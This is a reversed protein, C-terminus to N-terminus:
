KAEANVEGDSVRLRFPTGAPLQEKRKIVAGTEDLAVAYGRDLVALPNLSRLKEDQLRLKQKRRELNVDLVTQLRQELHAIQMKRDDFYAQPSKLVPRSAVSQLRQRLYETRTLLSRLLKDQVNGFKRALEVADPVAIEAAASPTPARLDAVFDCITFDIEHGVASIIPTKCAYVARALNEDNFCWLDEMSGGGRGILIVDCLRNEDLLRLASILEGPANPGQVTAPALLIKAAPFRRRTVNIMDRVAAGNPATIVGVRFPIKPLKKKHAPDFLGEANLKQKLQEFAIALNGVGDPQMDDAYLRYQGDRVFVAVRGTCIVKMGNQPEFKLKGQGGFMTAPLTSKEDKLTFYLHGSSGYVRLNSLEGKVTVCNLLPADALYDKIYTNLQEVTLATPKRLLSEGEPEDFGFGYNRYEM